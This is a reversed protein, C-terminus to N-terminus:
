REIFAAINGARLHEIVNAPNDVVIVAYRSVLQTGARLKVGNENLLNLAKVFRDSLDYSDSSPEVIIRVM